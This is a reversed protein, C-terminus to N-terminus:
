WDSSFDTAGSDWSSGSDWSDSRSWSSADSYSFNSYDASSDYSSGTYYDNLDVSSDVVPKSTKHWDNNEYEYWREYKKYYHKDDITYYGNNVNKMGVFLGVVMAICLVTCITSVTMEILRLSTNVVKSSGRKKAFLGKVLLLFATVQYVGWHGNPNIGRPLAVIFITVFILIVIKVPLPTSEVRDRRNPSGRFQMGQHAKQNTIEEKLRLYLENVAYAEDKGQYRIARQGNDKNKYVVFDGTSEDKYIGFARRETYNKGIFFRTIEEPPLNADKYWQKLEEITRPVGNGRRVYSNATGCFPCVSLSDDYKVGCYDCIKEM